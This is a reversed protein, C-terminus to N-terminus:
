SAEKNHIIKNDVHIHLLGGYIRCEDLRCSNVLKGEFVCMDPCDDCMDIRGDPLMDPAQVMGIGISKMPYFFGAPNSLCYKFYKWFAKRIGPDFFGMLFISKGIRGKPYVLFTGHTFHYFSQALELTRSGISGFTKGKTNALISGWLWKFSTHDVTGGLYGMADYDPFNEKIVKYVDQSKIQIKEFESKDVAYGLSELTVEVKKDNAFYEVGPMIPMGRQIILSLGNVMLINDIAWQIIVPVEHLNEPTVTIGFHAYFGYKKVMRAYRLRMENLASESDIKKKAFEPRTQTIDIHFSLGFLGAAKLEKLIQDNLAYGNTLMVSKMKHERIFAIIELIDPHLIPEGGALSIGDCNRWKKLFLIEEKIVDKPKHGEGIVLRYCGKCNINCIDTAEIWGIPNDNLSYPLRYLKKKDPSFKTEM